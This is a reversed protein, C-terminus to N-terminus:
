DNVYRDHSNRRFPCSSDQHPSTPRTTLSTLHIPFCSSLTVPCCHPFPTPCQCINCQVHRFCRSYPFILCFVYSISFSVKFYCTREDCHSCHALDAVLHCGVGPLHALGTPRQQKRCVKRKLVKSKRHNLWLLPQVACFSTKNNVFLGVCQM